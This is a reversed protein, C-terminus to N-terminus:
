VSFELKPCYSQSIHGGSGLYAKAVTEYGFELFFFVKSSLRM